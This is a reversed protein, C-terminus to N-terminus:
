GVVQATGASAAPDEAVPATLAAPDEPLVTTAVPDDEGAGKPPALQEETGARAGKALPNASELGGLDEVEEDNEM